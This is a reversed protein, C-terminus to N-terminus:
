QRFRKDEIPKLKEHAKRLLEEAIKLEREIHFNVMIKKYTPWHRPTVIGARLCIKFEIKLYDILANM